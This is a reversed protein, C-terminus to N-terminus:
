SKEKKVEYLKVLTSHGFADSLKRLGKAAEEVSVGLAAMTEVMVKFERRFNEAMVIFARHSVARKLDRRLRIHLLVAIPVVALYLWLQPNM